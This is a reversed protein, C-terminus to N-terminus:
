SLFHFSQLMPGLASTYLQQYRAAPVIMYISFLRTQSSRAPHNTALMIIEMSVRQSLMQVEGTAGQQQWIEGGVRATSALSVRKFNKYIGSQGIADLSVKVADGPATRANPNPVVQM